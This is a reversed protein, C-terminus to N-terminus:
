TIEVFEPDAKRGGNRGVFYATLPFLLVSLAGAGVLTAADAESMVGAEVQVTTVAVIIPLATAVYLSFRIRDRTVPIANRYVFFQPVGRALLILFAVVFMPLPDEIISLIDINVGSVIFFIPILFGFGIGEVKVHIANEADPPMNLRFIVGALFAGLVVDLGLTAAIALLGVLFLITIRVPTQSSSYHGAGILKRLKASKLWQPLKALLYAALAMAILSLVAEFSSLSSLFLSIALIPGFEGIAGAGMFFKGFPTRLEGNDRLVPLLTGLATSTLVIAFGIFNEIHGMSELVWTALGAVLLTCGWGIAALKGYRGKVAEPELELGAFFFLFGLGLQALLSISADIEVLGLVEPGVVIGLGLLIVVEAVKLRLLGVLLPALVAILMIFFLSNLEASLAADVTGIQIV